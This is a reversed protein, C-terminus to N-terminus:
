SSISLKLERVPFRGDTIKIDDQYIYAVTVPTVFFGPFQRLAGLDGVQQSVFKSLRLNKRIAQGAHRFLEFVEFALLDSEDPIKSMAFITTSGTTGFIHSGNTVPAMRRGSAWGMTTDAVANRRVLLKPLDTTESRNDWMRNIEIASLLQDKHTPTDPGHYIFRQMSPIYKIHSAQFYDRLILLLITPLQYARVGILCEPSNFIHEFM